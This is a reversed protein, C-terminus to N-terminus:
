NEEFSVVKHSCTHKFNIFLDVCDNKKRGTIRLYGKTADSSIDLYGKIM